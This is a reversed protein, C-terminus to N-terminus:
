CPVPKHHTPSPAVIAGFPPLFSAHQSPTITSLFVSLVRPDYFRFYVASRAEELEVMLFRRFHRRVEKFPARSTVYIGWRQGWGELVLRDLLASDARMPGALYPAVHDLAEGDTGEYLSQHKEVSERLIQLIRDDRAADVIAYLPDKEAEARLEILAKEAANRRARAEETLGNLGGAGEEAGDAEEADEEGEDGTDGGDALRSSGGEVYVMFDTRGARVWGGHPVEARVVPMGGLMTGGISNRDCLWCRKGDWSLEFHVSSMMEDHPIAVDALDTRGFRMSRGPEVVAKTGNSRGGRVEVILRSAEPLPTM